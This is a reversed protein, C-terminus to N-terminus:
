KDAEDQRSRVLATVVELCEEVTLLKPLWKGLNRRLEVLVFTEDSFHVAKHMPMESRLKPDRYRSCVLPLVKDCYWNWIDMEEPTCLNAPKTRVLILADEYIPRKNASVYDLLIINTPCKLRLFIYM